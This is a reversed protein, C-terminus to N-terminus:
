VRFYDPRWSTIAKKIEKAGLKQNLTQETLAPLENDSAFRLAVLQRHDL